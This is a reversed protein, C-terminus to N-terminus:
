TIRWEGGSFSALHGRKEAELSSVLHPRCSASRGTSGVVELELSAMLNWGFSGTTGLFCHAMRVLCLRPETSRCLFTLYSRGAGANRQTLLWLHSTGQRTLPLLSRFVINMSIQKWRLFGWTARAQPANQRCSLGGSANGNNTRSSLCYRWLVLNLADCQAACPM